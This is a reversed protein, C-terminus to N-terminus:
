RTTGGALQSAPRWTAQKRLILWGKSMYGRAERDLAALVAVYVVVASAGRVLFGVYHSEIRWVSGAACALLCAM